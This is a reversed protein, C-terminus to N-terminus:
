LRYGVAKVVKVAEVAKVVQGGGWEEMLIKIVKPGSVPFPYL